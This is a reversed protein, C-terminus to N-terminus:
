SQYGLKYQDLNGQRLQPLEETDMIGNIILWPNNTIYPVPGLQIVLTNSFISTGNIQLRLSVKKGSFILYYAGIESSAPIAQNYVIAAVSGTFFANSSPNGNEDLVTLPTQDWNTPSPRTGPTDFNVDGPLQILGNTKYSLQGPIGEEVWLVEDGTAGVMGLIPNNNYITYLIINWNTGDYMENYPVLEPLVLTDNVITTTQLGGTPPNDIIGSSTPIYFQGGKIEPTYIMNVVGNAGTIVSMPTITPNIYNLTGTWDTGPIVQLNVDPVTENALPGYVTASILAYDGSYYVPGYSVTPIVSDFTAPTIIESKDCSLVVSKPELDRNELYLFGSSLGSYAPNINIPIERTSGSSEYLVAVSPTYDAKIVVYKETIGTIQIQGKNPAFTYDSTTLYVPSTSGSPYYYVSTLNQVPYVPLYLNDTGSGSSIGLTLTNSTQVHNITIVRTIRNLKFQNSSGSFSGAQYRYSKLVTYFGNDDRQWVGVFIPVPWTPTESINLTTITGSFFELVKRGPLYFRNPGDFYTGDQINLNINNGDITLSLSKLDDGDGIGSVFDTDPITSLDSDWKTPSLFMSNINKSDRWRYNGIIFGPTERDLKRELPLIRIPQGLSTDNVITYGYFIPLVGTLHNPIPLSDGADVKYFSGSNITLGWVTSEYPFVTPNNVFYSLKIDIKYKTSSVLTDTGFLCPGGIVGFSTEWPNDTLSITPSLSLELLGTSLDDGRPVIVVSDNSIWVASPHLITGAPVNQSLGTLGSLIFGGTDLITASTWSLNIVTSGITVFGSGPVLLETIQNVVIHNAGSTANTLVLCTYPDGLYVSGVSVDGTEDLVFIKPTLSTIPHQLNEDSFFGLM